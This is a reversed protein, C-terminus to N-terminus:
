KDLKKSTREINVRCATHQEILNFLELYLADLLNNIDSINTPM